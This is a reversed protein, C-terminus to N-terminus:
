RMEFTCTVGHLIVRVSGLNTETMLSFESTQQVGEKHKTVINDGDRIPPSSWYCKILYYFYYIYKRWYQRVM